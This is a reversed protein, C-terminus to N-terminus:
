KLHNVEKKIREPWTTCLNTSKAPTFWAVWGGTYSSFRLVPLLLASAFLPNLLPHGALLGAVFQGTVPFIVLDALFLFKGDQGVDDVPFPCSHLYLFVPRQLPQLPGTKLSKTERLSAVPAVFPM